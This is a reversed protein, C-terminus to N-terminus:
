KKSSVKIHKEDMLKLNTRDIGVGHLDMKWHGMTKTQEPPALEEL